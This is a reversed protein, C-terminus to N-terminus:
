HGIGKVKSRLKWGSRLLPQMIRRGTLAQKFANWEKPAHGQVLELMQTSRGFNEYRHADCNTKPSPQSSLLVIPPHLPLSLSHPGFFTSLLSPHPPSLLLPPFSPPLLSPLFHLLSLLSPTYLIASPFSFIYLPLLSLSLPLSHSRTLHSLMLSLHIIYTLCQSHM